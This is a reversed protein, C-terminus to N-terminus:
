SCSINMVMGPRLTRFALSPNQAMLWIYKNGSGLKAKAISWFSDGGLVVYQCGAGFPNALNDAVKTLTSKYYKKIASTSANATRVEMTNGFDGATCGNVARVKFYYTQNNALANIKLKTIWQPTGSVKFSYNGASPTEGYFVEYGNAGNVTTTFALEASTSATDVQFLDPSQLPTTDTCVPTGPKYQPASFPLVPVSLSAPTVNLESGAALLNIEDNSLIRNYFRVDDLKGALFNTYDTAADQNAGLSVPIDSDGVALGTDTTQTGAGNIFMTRTTGDVTVAVHYWTDASMTATSSLETPDNDTGDDTYFDLTGDTDSQLLYQQKTDQQWKAVLTQNTTPADDFKVWLAITFVGVDLNDSDPVEVYDAGAFALSYYDSFGQIPTGTSDPQPGPTGLPTGNHGDGGSDAVTSGAATEDLKWYAVLGDTVANVPHSYKGTILVFM